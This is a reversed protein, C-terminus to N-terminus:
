STRWGAGGSLSSPYRRELAAHLISTILSHEDILDRTNGSPIDFMLSRIFDCLPKRSVLFIEKDYDLSLIGSESAARLVRRFEGRSSNIYKHYADDYSCDFSNMVCEIHSDAKSRVVFSPINYMECGALIDLDREMFRDGIVVIIFDFIFLGQANFYGCDPRTRTGAGPIDYWVIRSLPSAKDPYPYRGIEVTTEIFGTEAAGRDTALLGRLSNILSSKGSGATGTVAFHLAGPAYMLKEKVDSFEKETPWVTPNPKPSRATQAQLWEGGLNQFFTPDSDNSSGEGALWNQPCANVHNRSGPTYPSPSFPQGSENEGMDATIGTIAGRRINGNIWDQVATVAPNEQEPYRLFTATYELVVRAVLPVVASQVASQVGGM